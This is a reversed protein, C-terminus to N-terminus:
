RNKWASCYGLDIAEGTHIHIHMYTYHMYTHTFITHIHM